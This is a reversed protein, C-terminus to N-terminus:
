EAQSIFRKEHLTIAVISGSAEAQENEEHRDFLNILPAVIVTGDVAISAM